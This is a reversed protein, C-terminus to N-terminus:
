ARRTRYGKTAHYAREFPTPKGADFIPEIAIIRREYSGKKTIKRKYNVKLRAKARGEQWESSM